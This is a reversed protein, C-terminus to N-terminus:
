RHCYCYYFCICVLVVSFCIGTGANTKIKYSLLHPYLIIESQLISQVLPTCHTSGPQIGPAWAPCPPLKQCSRVSALGTAGVRDGSGFGPWAFGSCPPVWGCTNQQVRQSYGAWFYEGIGQNFSYLQFKYKYTAMFVTTRSKLSHTTLFM